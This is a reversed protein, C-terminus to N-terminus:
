APEPAMLGQKLTNYARTALTLKQVLENITSEATPLFAEYEQIDRKSRRLQKEIDLKESNCSILRKELDQIVTEIQTAAQVRAEEEQARAAEERRAIEMIKEHRQRLKQCMQELEAIIQKQEHVTQKLGTVCSKLKLTTESTLADKFKGLARLM